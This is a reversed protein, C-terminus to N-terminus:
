QTSFLWHPVKFLIIRKYLWIYFLIFAICFFMLAATNKWFILAPITASVSLFWLYPSTRANASLRSVQAVNNRSIIRRYILTHIHTGDALMPSRNRHILRRYISFLTETIPYLNVLLPFWPSVMANNNVLLISIVSILFGLLYAGGDGLFILGLPYNFVFFGLVAACIIANIRLLDFDGVALCVYSLSILAVIAIMSSLGNFGDIINYANSLGVISIITFIVQVEHSAFLSQLFHVDVDHIVIDLTYIAIVAALTTFILRTKITIKKTLDEGLGAVFCLISTFLITLGLSKTNPYKTISLLGFFIGIFIGVGGIRPTIKKHIKQKLNEILDGSLYIHYKQFRLIFFTTFTTILFSLAISTM